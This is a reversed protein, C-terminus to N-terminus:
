ILGREEAQRLLVYQRMMQLRFRYRHGGTETVTQLMAGQEEERLRELATELAAVSLPEGNEKVAVRAVDQLRFYGFADTPAQAAAFLVDKSSGRRGAEAAREYAEVVAREAEHVCCRVAYALDAAAVVEAGRAVASRAAHLSLLQAYYPLGRAFFVIRDRVRAEFALGATEAGVTVIRAIEADTMLPLHVAVLARQISPHKGLLEDLSSAVGIIFLTVPVSNDTLNKILEALKGKVDDQVVRDYEDLVLLVHVGQLDKLVENLETVSFPGEPLLEEFSTIGRRALFPDDRAPLYYTSPIRRLFSRFLDEFGLEGSCTLKLVLYGAQEALDQVVNAVSTKGRGRDGFLVVHAREEEIAAIIRRLIPIRGVFLSDVRHKPRTPTFAERLAQSRESSLGAAAASGLRLHGGVPLTFRPLVHEPDDAGARRDEMLGRMSRPERAVKEPNAPATADLWPQRRAELADGDEGQGLGRRKKFFNRM